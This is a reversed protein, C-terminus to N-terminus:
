SVNFDPGRPDPPYAVWVCEVLSTQSDGLNFSNMVTITADTAHTAPTTGLAGRVLSKLIGTTTTYGTDSGVYMLENDVKIYYDGALRANATGGEYTIAQTAVSITGGQTATMTNRTLTVAAGTGVRCSFMAVGADSFVVKDHQAGQKLISMKFQVGVLPFETQDLVSM